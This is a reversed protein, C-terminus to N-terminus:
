LLLRISEFEVEHNKRAANLRIERRTGLEGIRQVFGGKPAVAERRWRALFALGERAIGIQALGKFEGLPM